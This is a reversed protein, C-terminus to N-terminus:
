EGQDSSYFPSPSKILWKGNSRRLVVGTPTIQDVTYEDIKDKKRCVQGNLVAQFDVTGHPGLVQMIGSLAPLVTTSRTQTGTDAQPATPNSKLSSGAMPSLKFQAPLDSGAKLSLSGTTLLSEFQVLQTQLTRITQSYGVLPQQELAMYWYANAGGLLLAALMWTGIWMRQRSGTIKM